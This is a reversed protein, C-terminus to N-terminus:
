REVVILRLPQDNEGSSECWHVNIEQCRVRYVYVNVVAGVICSIIKMYGIVAVGLSWRLELSRDMDLFHYISSSFIISPILHESDHPAKFCRSLIPLLHIMCGFIVEICNKITALRKIM